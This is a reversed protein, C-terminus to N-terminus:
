RKFSPAPGKLRPAFALGVLMALGLDQLEFDSLENRKGTIGLGLRAAVVFSVFWQQTFSRLVMKEAHIMTSGLRLVSSDKVLDPRLVSM